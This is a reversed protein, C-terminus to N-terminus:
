DKQSKSQKAWEAMGRAIADWRNNPDLDLELRRLTERLKLLDESREQLRPSNSVCYAFPEITNLLTEYVLDRDVPPIKIDLAETRPPDPATGDTNRDKFHYTGGVLTVFRCMPAYQQNVAEIRVAPKLVSYAWKPFDPHTCDALSWQMLPEGLPFDDLEDVEDEIRFVYKEVRTAHIVWHWRNLTYLTVTADDLNAITPFYPLRLHRLWDIGDGKFVFSAATHTKVQILFSDEAILSLGERRLLTAILDIGYDEERGVEAVAAFPRFMQIALGEAINARRFNAAIRGGINESEGM